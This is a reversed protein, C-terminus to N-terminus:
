AEAWGNAAGAQYDPDNDMRDQMEDAWDSYRAHEDCVWVEYRMTTAEAGCSTNLGMDMVCNHERRLAQGTM